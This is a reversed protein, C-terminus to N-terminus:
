FLTVDPRMWLPGRRPTLRACGVILQMKEVSMESLEVGFGCALVVHGDM